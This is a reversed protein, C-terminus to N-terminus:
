SVTAAHSALMAIVDHDDFLGAIPLPDGAPAARDNLRLHLWMVDHWAGFKFGVREYVGVPTFGLSTHLGVSAPNPLTIGGYANVFGQRRLIDFLARYLARGIGARHARPDVYVSVNVSWQYAQREHHTSAYAYGIVEGDKEFVIWPYRDRHALIRREMEGRDPPTTEFSTAMQSVFPDYIRRVAEADAPAARRILTAM